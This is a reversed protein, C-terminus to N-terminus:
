VLAEIFVKHQPKINKGLLGLNDGHIWGRVNRHALAIAGTDVFVSNAGIHDLHYYGWNVDSTWRFM